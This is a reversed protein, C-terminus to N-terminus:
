IMRRSQKWVEERVINAFRDIPLFLMFKWYIPPVETVKTVVNSYYYRKIAAKYFRVAKGRKSTGITQASKLAQYSVSIRADLNKDFRSDNIFRSLFNFFNARDMPHLYHFNLGLFGGQEKQLVMTLPYRDYFPLTAEGRPKYGYFYMKGPAFKTLSEGSKEIIGLPRIYGISSLKDRFWLTAEPETM